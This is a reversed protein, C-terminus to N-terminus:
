SQAKEKKELEKARAKENLEEAAIEKEQVTHLMTSGHQPSTMDGTLKAPTLKNPYVVM